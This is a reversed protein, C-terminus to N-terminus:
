GTLLADAIRRAAFSPALRGADVDAEVGAVRQSVEPSRAALAALVRGQVEARLWARSQERRLETLEGSAEIADRHAAVTSWLADIGDGTRGSVVVSKPDWAAHRRRMYHLASRLDRAAIRARSAGDGDAKTVAVVDVVEMIGRKIGQLEDGAGGQALLLFTDVMSAVEVESQGVGVTEVLVVDFGFAECLAMVGRTKAAVGGIHDGSPSPRVFARPDAALRPMRTKDGLISGRSFRSSPDVALVAVRLGQELLHAGLADVLTSKGVGPPGSVGVRRARGTRSFLRQVLEEAVPEDSPRRSEILTIARALVSRDGGAIGREAEDLGLRPPM